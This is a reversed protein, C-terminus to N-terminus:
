LRLRNLLCGPKAHRQRSYQTSYAAPSTATAREKETPGEGFTGPAKRPLVSELAASGRCARTPAACNHSHANRRGGQAKGTSLQAGEAQQRNARGGQHSTVGVAVILVGHDQGERATPWGMTTSAAETMRAATSRRLAEIKILLLTM